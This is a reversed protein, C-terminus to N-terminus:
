PVCINEICREPIVRQKGDNRLVIAADFPHEGWSFCYLGRFVISECDTGHIAFPVSEKHDMTRYSFFNHFVLNSCRAMSLAHTQPCWRNEETQLAFFEWNRVDELEVEVGQHHEVSMCIIRGPASTKEIRLGTLAMADASWVNKLTGGGRILISHNTGQTRLRLEKRKEKDLWFSRHSNGLDDDRTFCPRTDIWVDDILSDRGAEWFIGSAGPNRGIRFGIGSLINSGKAPASLMPQPDDAVMFGATSERLELSTCQPHLGVLATRPGLQITGSIIYRGPPFFLTDCTAIADQLSRTCDHIESFDTTPQIGLTSVDTWSALPPLPRVSSAQPSGNEVPITQSGVCLPTPTNPFATRSVNIFHEDAVSAPSLIAADSINDFTSDTVSLQEVPDTPDVTIGRPMDAFTSSVVTLGARTAQIAADRQGSFECEFVVFPWSASTRHTEIAHRGGFFRCREVINGADEIGARSNGLRFEADRIFSHQAVHYRTAIADPNGDEIEFDVNQIGSFFTIFNADELPIDGCPAFNRFHVMYRPEGGAYGPTNEALLLTPRTHGVGLIRIGRWLNVTSALRYRGEPLFIVGGCGWDYVQDIAAQLAPANDASGDGCIGHEGPSLLLGHDSTFAEM